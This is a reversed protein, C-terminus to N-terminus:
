RAKAAAEKKNGEGHGSGGTAVTLLSSAQIEILIHLGDQGATTEATM